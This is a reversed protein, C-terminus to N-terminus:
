LCLLSCLIMVTIGRSVFIQPTNLLLGQLADAKFLVEYHLQWVFYVEGTNWAITWWDKKCSSNVYVM